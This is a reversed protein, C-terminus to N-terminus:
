ALGSWSWDIREAKRQNLYVNLLVGLETTDVEEKLLVIVSRNIGDKYAGWSIAYKGLGTEWHSFREM